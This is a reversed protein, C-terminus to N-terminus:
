KLKMRLIQARLFEREIGTADHAELCCMITDLNKKFILLAQLLNERNYMAIDKWMEPSSLAIRTSDKFGQGAYELYQSNISELANVLAYAIVHPSHSVAAYIEDHVSPDMLEVKAGLTEWFAIIKQECDSNRKSAPTIICRADRFLDGRADDIGSKDGGAIPHSGLYHIGEPMMSELEYVLRGKVSGVDTVMTGRKLSSRMRFVIDKFSGVPTSLLVLDVNQCADHIDMSYNDIIGRERANKLNQESRGYGYIKLSARHEKLALAVSAGILGVGIILVNDFLIDKGSQM